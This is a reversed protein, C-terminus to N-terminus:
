RRGDASEPLAVRFPLAASKRRPVRMTPGSAQRDLAHTARRVRAIRAHLRTLEVGARRDSRPSGSGLPNPTRRRSVDLKMAGPIGGFYRCRMWARSRKSRRCENLSGLGRGFGRCCACRRTRAPRGSTRTRTARAPVQVMSGVPNPSPKFDKCSGRFEAQKANLFARDCASGPGIRREELTFSPRDKAM